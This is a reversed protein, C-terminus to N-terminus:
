TDDRVVVATGDDVFQPLLSRPVADTFAPATYAEVSEIGDRDFEIVAVSRDSVDSEGLLSRPGAGLCAMSLMRLSDRKGPYYAHHHGSVFLDVGHDALLAELTSDGIVEDARGEAFGWLPLHGYVIKIPKDANQTLVDELWQMQPQGLGGVITDDLSIILAPGLEFAYRLPYYTDEVFSVAPRKATWEDVYIDRENQYTSYGSADHNGPTPAFPIGALTLPDTVAAHFGDWMARYDLGSKQGAVMDGASLVLDPQLDDTIFSVAQHVQDIYTTSGYSSNMDAVVAVTYTTPPAPTTDELDAADLGDAVDAAVDAAADRSADDEPADVDHPSADETHTDSVDEALAADPSNVVQDSVCGALLSATSLLFLTRRM